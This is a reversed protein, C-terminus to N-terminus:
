RRQESRELLEARKAKWRLLHEEHSLVLSKGNALNDLSQQVESRFWTDYESTEEAQREAWELLAQKVVDAESAYTGSTVAEGVITALRESVDITILHADDM